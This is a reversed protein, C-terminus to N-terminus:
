AGSAGIGDNCSEPRKAVEITSIADDQTPATDRAQMPSISFNVVSVIIITIYQDYNRILAFKM